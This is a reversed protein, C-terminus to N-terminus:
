RPLSVHSFQAEPDVEADDEPDHDTYQEHLRDEVEEVELLPIHYLRVFRESYETWIRHSLAPIPDVPILHNWVEVFLEPVEGLPVILGVLGVYLIHSRMVHDSDVTNSGEPTTKGFGGLQLQIPQSLEIRM